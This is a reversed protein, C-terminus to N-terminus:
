IESNPTMKKISFSFRTIVNNLWELELVDPSAANCTVLNVYFLAGVAVTLKRCPIDSGAVCEASLKVSVTEDFAWHEVLAM